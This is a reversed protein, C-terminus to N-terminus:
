ADPRQRNGEGYGGEHVVVPVLDGAILAVHGCCHAVELKVLLLACPQHLHQHGAHLHGHPEEERQQDHDEAVGVDERGQQPGLVELPVLGHAHDYGHHHDEDGAVQGVVDGEQIAGHGEVATEVGHEVGENPNIKLVVEPLNQHVQPAQPFLVNIASPGRRERRIAVDGRSLGGLAGIIFVPRRKGHSSNSDNKLHD